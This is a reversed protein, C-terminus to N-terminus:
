YFTRFCLNLLRGKNGSIDNWCLFKLHEFDSEGLDDSIDILVMHLDDSLPFRQSDFGMAM